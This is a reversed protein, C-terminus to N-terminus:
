KCAKSVEPITMWVTEWLNTLEVETWAFDDPSPIVPEAKTGATWIGAQFITHQVHKILYPANKASPIRDM